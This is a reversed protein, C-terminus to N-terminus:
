PHLGGTCATISVERGARRLEEGSLTPRLDSTHTPDTTADEHYRNDEWREWGLGRRPERGPSAGSGGGHHGSMSGSQPTVRELTPRPFATPFAPTRSLGPAGNQVEIDYKKVSMVSITLNYSLIIVLRCAKNIILVSRSGHHVPEVMNFYKEIHDRRLHLTFILQCEAFLVFACCDVCAFKGTVAGSGLSPTHLDRAIASPV